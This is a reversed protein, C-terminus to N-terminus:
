RSYILQNVNEIKNNRLGPDGKGKQFHATDSAILLSLFGRLM